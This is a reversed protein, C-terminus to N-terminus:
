QISETMYAKNKMFRDKSDEPFLTRFPRKGESTRSQDLSANSKDFSFQVGDLRRNSFYETIQGILRQMKLEVSESNIHFELPEYNEGDGIV